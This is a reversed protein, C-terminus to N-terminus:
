KGGGMRNDAPASKVGRIVNMLGVQSALQAMPVAIQLGTVTHRIWGKSPRTLAALNASTQRLDETAAVSSDAAREVAAAIRPAAQAVRGMTYRTSGVLALTQSQLCASYESCDWLWRTAYAARDPLGRYEAMLAQSEKLVPQLDTRVASLEQRAVDRTAALEALLDARTSAIQREAAARTSRVEELLTARTAIMQREAADRTLQLEARLDARVGNVERRMELALLSVSLLAFAAAALVLMVLIKKAVTM